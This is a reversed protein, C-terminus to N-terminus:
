IIKTFWAIVTFLFCTNCNEVKIKNIFYSKTLEGLSNFDQEKVSYSKEPEM